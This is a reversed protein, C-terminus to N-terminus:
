VTIIIVVAAGRRRSRSIVHWHEVECQRTVGAESQKVGSHRLVIENESAPSAIVIPDHRRAWDGTAVQRLDVQSPVHPIVPRAHDLEIPCSLIGFQCDFALLMEQAAGSSLADALVM